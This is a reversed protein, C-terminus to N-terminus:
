LVHWDYLVLFMLMLQRLLVNKWMTSSYTLLRQFQVPSFCLQSNQHLNNEQSSSWFREYWQYNNDLQNLYQLPRGYNAWWHGCNGRPHLQRWEPNFHWLISNISNVIVMCTNASRFCPLAVLVIWRLSTCDSDEKKRRSILVVHLNGWWFKIFFSEETHNKGAAWQM